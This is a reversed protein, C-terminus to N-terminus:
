RPCVAAAQGQHCFREQTTGTVDGRASAEGM